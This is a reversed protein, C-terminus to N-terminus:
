RANGALIHVACCASCASPVAERCPSNKQTSYRSAKRCLPLPDPNHARVKRTERHLRASRRNPVHYGTDKGPRKSRCPVAKHKKRDNYLRQSCVHTVDALLIHHRQRSASECKARLLYSAAPGHSVKKEAQTLGDAETSQSAVCSATEAEAEM